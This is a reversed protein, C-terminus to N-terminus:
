VDEKMKYKLLCPEKKQCDLPFEQEGDDNGTWDFKNQPDDGGAEKKRMAM